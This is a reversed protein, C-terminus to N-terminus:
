KDHCGLCLGSVRNDVTLMPDATSPYLSRLGSLLTHNLSSYPVHCTGCGINNGALKLAPDLLYVPKLGGNGSSISVYDVGIPHDCLPSSCPNLTTDSAIVADHCSLCEISEFDLAWSAPSLIFVSVVAVLLHNKLRKM